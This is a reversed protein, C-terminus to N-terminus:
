CLSKWLTLVAKWPGTTPDDSPLQPVTQQGGKIKKCALAVQSVQAPPCRHECWGTDENNLLMSNKETALSFLPLSPTLRSGGVRTGWLAPRECAVLPETRTVSPSLRVLFFTVKAWWGCLLLEWLLWPDEWQGEGREESLRLGRRHEEIRWSWYIAAIGWGRSERNKKSWSETFPSLSSRGGPSCQLMTAKWM